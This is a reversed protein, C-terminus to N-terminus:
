EIEITIDNKEMSFHHKMQFHFQWKKSSIPGSGVRGYKQGATFLLGVRTSKSRVRPSKKQGSPFFNFLKVNKPSIKWIWVWVMSPQVSRVWGSGSFISGVRALFKSGSGDSSKVYKKGENTIKCSYFFAQLKINIIEVKCVFLLPTQKLQRWLMLISLELYISRPLM